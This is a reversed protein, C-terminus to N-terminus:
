RYIRLAGFWALVFDISNPLAIALPQRPGLGARSLSAAVRDAGEVLQRYSLTRGTDGEIVAPKDGLQRAGALVVDCISCPPLDLPPWPSQFIM